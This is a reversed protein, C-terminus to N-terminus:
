SRTQSNTSLSETINKIRPISTSKMMTLWSSAYSYPIESRMCKPCFPFGCVIKRKAIYSDSTNESVSLKGVQHQKAIDSAHVPPLVVGELVQIWNPFSLIRGTGSSTGCGPSVNFSATPVTGLTIFRGLSGTDVEDAWDSPYNDTSDTM